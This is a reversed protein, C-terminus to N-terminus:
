PGLLRRRGCLQRTRPRSTNQRPSSLKHEEYCQLIRNYLCSTMYGVGKSKQMDQTARSLARSFQGGKSTGASTEKDSCGTISIANFGEEIWRPSDFDMISGGM